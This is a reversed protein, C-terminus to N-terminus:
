DKSLDYKDGEKGKPVKSQFSLHWNESLGKFYLKM